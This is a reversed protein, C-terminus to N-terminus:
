EPQPNYTEALRRNREAESMAAPDENPATIPDHKLGTEVPGFDEPPAPALEDDFGPRFDLDNQDQDQGRLPADSQADTM